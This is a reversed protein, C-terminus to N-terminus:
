MEFRNYGEPIQFARTSKAWPVGIESFLKREALAREVTPAIDAIETAMGKMVPDDYRKIYQAPVPVTGRASEFAANVTLTFNRAMEVPCFPEERGRVAAITNLFVSIKSKVADRATSEVRGDAWHVDMADEDDKPTRLVAKEAHVELYHPQQDPACTTGYFLIAPGEATEVRVSSTDEAEIAHARYFEAQVRVPRATGIPERGCYYLARMMSHAMPNNLTGDLVWSEGVKLKGTWPNRAYYGDDRKWLGKYLVERVRGFEGSLIRRKIARVNASYESQFGINLIRGSKKRAAIMADVEQVTGAPPKECLVHYGAQLARVSLECHSNIGTPIAVIEIRGREAELM